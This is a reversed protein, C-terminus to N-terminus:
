FLRMAQFSPGLYSCHTERHDSATIIIIAGLRSSFCPQLITVLSSLLVVFVAIIALVVNLVKALLNRMSSSDFGEMITQQQQQHSLELKLV